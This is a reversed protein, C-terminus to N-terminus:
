QIIYKGDHRTPKKKTATQCHPRSHPAPQWGPSRTVSFRTIQNATYAPERKNRREKKRASLYRDGPSAAAKLKLEKPKRKHVVCRRYVGYKGHM